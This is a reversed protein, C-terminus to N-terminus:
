RLVRSARMRLSYFLLAVAVLWVAAILSWYAATNVDAPLGAVLVYAQVAALGLVSLAFAYGAWISRAFLLLSGLLGFGVGMAAAVVVWGFLGDLYDVMDSPVRAILGPQRVEIMLYGFCASGYWLTGLVGILWMHLPASTASPQSATADM